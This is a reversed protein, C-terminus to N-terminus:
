ETKRKKASHACDEQAVQEVEKAELCKLGEVYKNAQVKLANHEMQERSNPDQNKEMIEGTSAMELAQHIKLLNKLDVETFREDLCVTSPKLCLNNYLGVDRTQFFYRVLARTLPSSLLTQPRQESNVASGATGASQEDTSNPIGFEDTSNPLQQSSDDSATKADGDGGKLCSPQNNRPNAQSGKVFDSVAQPTAM